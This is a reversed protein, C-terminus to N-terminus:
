WVAKDVTAGRASPTTERRYVHCPRLLNAHSSEHETSRPCAPASCREQPAANRRIAAAAAGPPLDCWLIRGCLFRTSPMVVSSSCRLNPFMSWARPARPCALVYSLQVSPSSQLYQLRLARPLRAEVLWLVVNCVCPKSYPMRLPVCNSSCLVYAFWTVELSAIYTTTSLLWVVAPRQPCIARELTFHPPASDRGCRTPQRGRRAIRAYSCSDRSFCLLIL